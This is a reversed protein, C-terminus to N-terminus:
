HQSVALVTLGRIDNLYYVCLQNVEYIFGAKESALQKRSFELGSLIYEFSGGFV